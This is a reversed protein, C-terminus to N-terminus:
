SLHALDAVRIVPFESWLLISSDDVPVEDESLRWEVSGDEENRWRQAEVPHLEDDPDSLKPQLIILFHGELSPPEMRYSKWSITSVVMM